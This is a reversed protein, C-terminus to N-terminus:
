KSAVIKKVFGWTYALTMLLLLPALITMILGASLIPKGSKLFALSIGGIGILIGGVSVGLFGKPAKGAKSAFWPVLVITFGAISHFLALTFIQLGRPAGLFRTVLIAVFGVIAFVLYGKAKDAHFEVMLGTAIGLPLITTVVIVEPNPLIGYGKWILLLGSVLLVVFSVIYYTNFVASNGRRKNDAVFQIVLYVATLGTALLVIQDFLNM